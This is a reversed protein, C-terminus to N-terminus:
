NSLLREYLERYKRASKEWSFDTRMAEEVMRKYGAKDNRWLSIATDLTHQLSGASYNEFLFGNVDHKISDRLGGTKHAIPLTGHFMGIMQVLGCPEFKSPILIFDSAAYIWTALSTNFTFNCSVSKPFFKCLWQLREEWNVNGKGLIVIQFRGLDTNRLMRHLIDLGKQGEALRGIFSLLPINESRKFGLKKQLALKNRKKGEVWSYIKKSGDIPVYPYRLMKNHSMIQLEIDIGNLIGFVRGEKGNLIQDLGQGYEETMIEKAYTPSVTTVIDAHIIGEMLFNIQKSKIEWRLSACKSKDIELKELIEYSTEGQYSLNHITLMSKVALKYEKILLPIFGAHHDNCHIIDPIWNTYNAKVMEVIAKDFFAFTDIGLADSLYHKNRLLYVVVKSSPHSLSYLDVTENHGDYHVRFSRLKTKKIRGLKLVNYFPIITRIDVGSSYLANPLSRAVDGLGGFKFFPDLEWSVFLVNMNSYNLPIKKGM